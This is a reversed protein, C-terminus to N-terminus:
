FIVQTAKKYKLLMVLDLNSQIKIVLIELTLLIKDINKSLNM